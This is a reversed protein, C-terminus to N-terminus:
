PTIIEARFPFANHGCYRLKIGDVLDLFRSIFSNVVVVAGAGRAAVYRLVFPTEAIAPIPEAIIADPGVPFASLIVDWGKGLINNAM